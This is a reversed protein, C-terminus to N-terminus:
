TIKQPSEPACKLARCVAGKSCGLEAQIKRYSFGKERLEIIREEDITKPRGLTKGKKIALQLGMMTRERILAAEFEAFSAIIHMMLRGSPTTMDINDNLSIFEVGLEDLEYLTNVINKLSRFLRDLKLVLIVDIERKRGLKMLEKLGPRNSDVGSFGHDVIEECLEWGRRDVYDRLKSLQTEPKQDHHSTSCRVYIAVRKNSRYM